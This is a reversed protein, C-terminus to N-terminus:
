LNADQMSAESPEDELGAYTRVMHLADKWDQAYHDGEWPDARTMAPAPWVNIGSGDSVQFKELTIGHAKALANAQERDKRHSDPRRPATQGFLRGLKRELIKM